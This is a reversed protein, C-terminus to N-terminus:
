DGTRERGKKFDGRKISKILEAWAFPNLLPLATASNRNTQYNTQINMYYRFNMSGDMPMMMAMNTLKRQNLNRAMNEYRMEPLELALFAKKFAEEDAFPFVEIVPLIKAKEKMDIVVSYAAESRPPIVVMKREYGVRSILVTDGSKVLMTFLGEPNTITGYGARPIYVNVSPLPKASDGDMILGSFTILQVQGQAYSNTPISLVCICVFMFVYLVSCKIKQTM